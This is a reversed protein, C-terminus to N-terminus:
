LYISSSVFLKNLHTFDSKTLDMTHEWNNISTSTINATLMFINRNRDDRAFETLAEMAIITDQKFQYDFTLLRIFM